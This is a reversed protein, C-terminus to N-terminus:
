GGVDGVAGRSSEGLKELDESDWKGVRKLVQRLYRVLTWEMPSL